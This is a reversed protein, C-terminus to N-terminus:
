KNHYYASNEHTLTNVYLTGSSLDIVPTGTIGVEPVVDNFDGYRTGFDTTPTTASPGLNTQWLLGGSSGANTDADFAYVTNHQTAVFLVNRTGAAPINLGSVYLPQAYIYGDVEYAFLKGTRGM